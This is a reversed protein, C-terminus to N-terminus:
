AAPSPAHHPSAAAPAPTVPAPEEVSPEAEARPAPVIREILVLELDPARPLPPPIRMLLWVMFATSALALAAAGLRLPLEPSSEDARM